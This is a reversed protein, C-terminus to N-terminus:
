TSTGNLVNPSLQHSSISYLDELCHHFGTSARFLAENEQYTLNSKGHLIDKVSYSCLDALLHRERAVTYNPCSFFVHQVNEFGGCRYIDSNLSSCDMRLRAHFIQGLRIGANIYKPPAQMNRNLFSKFITSAEKTEAQNNWARITAPFETIRFTTLTESVTGLQKKYLQLCLIWLITQLQDM